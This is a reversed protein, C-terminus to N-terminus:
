LVTRGWWGVCSLWRGEQVSLTLLGNGGRVPLRSEVTNTESSLQTRLTAAGNPEM